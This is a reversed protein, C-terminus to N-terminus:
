HFNTNVFQDIHCLSIVCPRYFISWPPNDHFFIFKCFTFFLECIDNPELARFAPTPDEPEVGFKKNYEDIFAALFANAAEM